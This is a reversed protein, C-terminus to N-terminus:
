DSRTTEQVPGQARGARAQTREQLIAIRRELTAHDDLLQQETKKLRYLWASAYAWLKLELSQSLRYCPDFPVCRCGLRASPRDRGTAVRQFPFPAVCETAAHAPDNARRQARQLQYNDWVGGLYIGVAFAAAHFSRHTLM